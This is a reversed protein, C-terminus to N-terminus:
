PKEKRCRFNACAKNWNHNKLGCECIWNGANKFAKIREKLYDWQEETLQPLEEDYQINSDNPPTIIPM